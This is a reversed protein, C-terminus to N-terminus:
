PPQWLRDHHLTHMCRKTHMRVCSAGEYTSGDPYAMKGRGQRVNDVYEGLYVAGCAWTYRGHGCRLGHVLPGEYVDGSQPEEDSNVDM